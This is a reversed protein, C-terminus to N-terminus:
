RGVLQLAAGGAAIALWILVLAGSASVIMRLWSLLEHRLTEEL